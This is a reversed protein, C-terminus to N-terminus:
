SPLGRHGEVLRQAPVGGADPGHAPHEVHAGRTGKAGLRKQSDRGTCASAAAKYGRERRGARVKGGMVHVGEM